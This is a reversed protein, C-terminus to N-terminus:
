LAMVSPRKEQPAKATSHALGGRPGAVCFVARWAHSGESRKRHSVTAARVRPRESPLNVELRSPSGSLSDTNRAYKPKTRM